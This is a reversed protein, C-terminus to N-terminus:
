RVFSGLGGGVERCLKSINLQRWDPFSIELLSMRAGVINFARPKVRVIETNPTRTNHLYARTNYELLTTTSSQLEQIEM